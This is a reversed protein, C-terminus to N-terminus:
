SSVEPLAFMPVSEGHESDHGYPRVLRHDYYCEVCCRDRRVGVFTFEEGTRFNMITWDKTLDRRKDVLWQGVPVEPYDSATVEYRYIFQKRSTSM